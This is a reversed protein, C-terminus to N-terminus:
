AARLASQRNRTRPPPPGSPGAQNYNEAARALELLAEMPPTLLPRNMRGIKAAMDALDLLGVLRPDLQRACERCVAQDGAAVYLRPGPRYAVSQCCVSCAFGGDDDCLRLSLGEM